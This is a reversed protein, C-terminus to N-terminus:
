RRVRRRSSKGSSRSRWAAPTSCGRLRGRRRRPVSRRRAAGRRRARWRREPRASSGGAQSFAMPTRCSRRTRMRARLSLRTKALRKLSSPRAIGPRVRSPIRRRTRAGDADLRRRQAAALPDRADDLEGGLFAFPLHQGGVQRRRQVSRSRSSPSPRTSADTRAFTRAAQFLRQTAVFWRRSTKSARRGRVCGVAGEQEGLDVLTERLEGVGVGGVDDVERAVVGEEVRGANAQFLEDESPGLGM